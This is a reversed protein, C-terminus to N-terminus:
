EIQYGVNSTRSISGVDYITYRIDFITFRVDKVRYRPRLGVDKVRFGSGEISPTARRDDMAKHSPHVDEM